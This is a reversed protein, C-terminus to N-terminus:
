GLAPGLFSKLGDRFVAFSRSANRDPEMFRAIDRAAQIKALGGKYYGAKQLVRELTQWTGGGIADPDRYRAKLHLTTPMRPYAQLVAQIDGFYWAELEEVAIRNLVQFAGQRASTRTLFGADRAAEELREKLEKCEQRDEDILVVIGWDSPLWSRYGKLRKPLKRLLDQKGKFPHITFTVGALIRPILIGLATEASPEEVLMELHM